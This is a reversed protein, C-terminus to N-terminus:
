IRRVDSADFWRDEEKIKKEDRIKNDEKFRDGIFLNFVRWLNIQEVESIEVKSFKEETTEEKSYSLEKQIHEKTIHPYNSDNPAQSNRFGSTTSYKTTKKSM